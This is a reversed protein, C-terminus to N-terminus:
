REAGNMFARETLIVLGARAIRGRREADVLGCILANFIETLESASIDIRFVGEHQGRLFFADQKGLWENEVSRDVLVDKWYHMLFVTLEKHAYYNEILITLAEPVPRTELEAMEMAEHMVSIGLEATKQVLQERTQCFRYLTAKSVGVAQALEKLTARPHEVLAGALANVMMM